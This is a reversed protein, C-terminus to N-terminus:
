LPRARGAGYTMWRWLAEMPGQGVARVWLISITVQVVWVALVLVGLGTVSMTGFLGLGFGQMLTVAIVSQALYNTLALRGTSALARRLPAIHGQRVIWLVTGAYGAAVFLSGAYNFQMGLTYHAVFDWGTAENFQIGAEVIPLGILLGGCAVAFYTSPRAGGTLFGSKVLAMGIAMLGMIRFATGYLFLSLQIGLAESVNATVQAPWGGSGRLAIEQAIVTQTPMWAAEMAQREWDPLAALTLGFGYAMLGAAIILGLGIAMLLAPRLTRLPAVLFGCLAYCVLIDGPWILYAHLLGLGLLVLLRRRHLAGGARRTMMIIGAGFLVSFLTYFKSAILLTTAHWVVADSGTLVGLARPNSYFAQPLSFNWVNIAFIGLVSFGRLVDLSEHRIAQPSAAPPPNRMDPSAMPTM